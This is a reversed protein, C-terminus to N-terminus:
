KSPNNKVADLGAKPTMEQVRKADQDTYAPADVPCTLINSGGNNVKARGGACDPSAAAATSLTAAIIIAIFKTM